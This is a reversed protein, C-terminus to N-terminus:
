AKLVVNREKSTKRDVRDLAKLVNLVTSSAEDQSFFSVVDSRQKLREM